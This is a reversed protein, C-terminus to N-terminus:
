NQQTKELEVSALLLEDGSILRTHWDGCVGCLLRNATADSEEGCTECRVRVPLTEIHLEADNAVTGARAIPFAQKLLAPEIGSLPGIRITISSVSQAAHEVAIDSVQRMM